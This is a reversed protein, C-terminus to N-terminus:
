ITSQNIIVINLIYYVDVSLQKQQFNDSIENKM